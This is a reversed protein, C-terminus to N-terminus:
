MHWVLCLKLSIGPPSVCKLYLSFNPHCRWLGSVLYWGKLSWGLLLYRKEPAKWHPLGNLNERQDKLLNQFLVDAFVM